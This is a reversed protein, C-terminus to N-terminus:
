QNCILQEVQQALDANKVAGQKDNTKVRNLKEIFWSLQALTIYLLSSGGTKLSQLPLLFSLGAFNQPSFKLDTRLM